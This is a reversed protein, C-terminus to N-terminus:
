RARGRKQEVVRAPGVLMRNIIQALERYDQKQFSTISAGNTSLTAEQAFDFRSRGKSM